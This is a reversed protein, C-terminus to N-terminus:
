FNKDILRYFFINGNGKLCEKRLKKTEEDTANTKMNAALNVIGQTVLTATIVHRNKMGIKAHLLSVLFSSKLSNRQDTKIMKPLSFLREVSVNSFPLSALTSVFRILDQYKWEGSPTKADRINLWYESWQLEPKANDEFVHSRWQMDLRRLDM